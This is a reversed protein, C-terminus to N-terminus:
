HFPPCNEGEVMENFSVETGNMDYCEDESQNSLVEYYECGAAAYREAAAQTYVHNLETRVLTRAVHFEKNFEDSITKAVEDPGVGRTIVDTIGKELSSQLEGM